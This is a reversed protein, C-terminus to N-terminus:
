IQRHSAASSTFPRGHRRSTPEVDPTPGRADSVDVPVFVGQRTTM